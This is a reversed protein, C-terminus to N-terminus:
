GFLEQFKRCREAITACKSSTENQICQLRPAMSLNRRIREWDVTGDGPLKHEDGEGSNDHNDHLHCNVLWPVFKEILNEEWEVPIGLDNWCDATWPVRKETLNGHGSDYCLGLRPSRFHEMVRLLQRSHNLPTWQNELALIVGYKEADPLLEELSRILMRYYDDLTLHRGFIRNCTNGTHFTLTTVGFAACFRIALRHRLIVTDHWEELPMGPDSWAGWSAHADVFDLGFSKMDEQFDLLYQLSKAGEELLPNTLVLHRAGAEAFERLHRRREERNDETWSYTHTLPKM